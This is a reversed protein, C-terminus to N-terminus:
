AGTNWFVQRQALFDKPRQNFSQTAGGPCFVPIIVSPDIGRFACVHSIGFFFALKSIVAVKSDPLPLSVCFQPNGVIHKVCKKSFLATLAVTGDLSSSVISDGKDSLCLDTVVDSHPHFVQVANGMLDFIIIRGSQTGAAIIKDHAALATSPDNTFVRGNGLYSPETPFSFWYDRDGDRDANKNPTSLLLDKFIEPSSRPKRRPSSSNLPSSLSGSAKTTGPPSMAVTISKDMVAEPFGGSMELGLDQAPGERSTAPREALFDLFM